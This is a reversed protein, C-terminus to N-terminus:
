PAVEKWNYDCVRTGDCTSTVGGCGPTSSTATYTKGICALKGQDATCGPACFKTVNVQVSSDISFGAAPSYRANISESRTGSAPLTNPSLSKPDTGSLTVANYPSNNETWISSATVNATPDPDSCNVKDSYCAVLNRAPENDYMSFASGDARYIGSSCSNECIQLKKVCTSDPPIVADCLGNCGITGIGQNGCTPNKPSYCTAGYGAPLPPTTGSCTGDCQITGASPDSTSCQGVYCAVTGNWPATYTVTNPPCTYGAEHWSGAGDAWTLPTAKAGTCTTTAPYSAGCANTSTCASGYGPPNAPASVSCAGGCQYTGGGNCSGCSNCAGCPQGYYSADHLDSPCSAPVILGSTDGFPSSAAINLESSSISQAPREKQINYKDSLIIGGILSFAILSFSLLRKKAFIFKM